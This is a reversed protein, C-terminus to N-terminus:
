SQANAHVSELVAHYHHRWRSPVRDITWCGAPNFYNESRHPQALQRRPHSGATLRAADPCLRIARVRGNGGTIVLVHPKAALELVRTRDALFLLQDAHDYVPTRHSIHM